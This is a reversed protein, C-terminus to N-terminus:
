IKNIADLLEQIDFHTYVKETINMAGSHGVIKKIIVPAVGAVTLMSVCTHRTDHRLHEMGLQEMLPTWYSDVYNRYTFPENDLTTLLNEGKSKEYWYKFFAFTKDAIPVNRIGSPTKSKSIYFYHKDIHVDSKKLELLESVRVGSYILMLIIKVYDNDSHQWLTQIEEQTFPKHIDEQKDHASKHKAIDVFKSYDKSVIDNELAFKYLQNFLVKLKRLTPYSKQCSDVVVQMDSKRIDAFKMKYLPECCKYSAKYGNVNSKSITDFKEASWKEYVQEFTIGICEIAIPNKNYALLAESASAYNKYYGLVKRKQKVKGNEDVECSITVRVEYPNRLKGKRKYISGYGNANRM